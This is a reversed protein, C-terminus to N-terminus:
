KRLFLLILISYSHGSRKLEERIFVLAEALSNKVTSKSVGLYDAIERVDRGEERSLQYIQKRRPPMKHVALRIAKKLESLALSEEVPNFDDSIPIPLSRITRERSANQALRNYACNSAVRFLWSRPKELAPLEDRHVWVRLMTEQLIDEADADSGTLRVLFPFLLRAYLDFLLKFAAEDGEAVLLLLDTENTHQSDTSM